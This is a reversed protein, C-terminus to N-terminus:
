YLIRGGTPVSQLEYKYATGESIKISRIGPRTGEPTQAHSKYEYEHIGDAYVKRPKLTVSGNATITAPGDTVIYVSYEPRELLEEDPGATKFEDRPLLHPHANLSEFYGLKKAPIGRALADAYADSQIERSSNRAM